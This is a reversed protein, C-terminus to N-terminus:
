ALKNTPDRSELPRTIASDTQCYKSKLTTRYYHSTGSVIQETQMKSNSYKSMLALLDPRQISANRSLYDSLRILLLEERRLTEMALEYGERIIAKVEENTEGNRDHYSLVFEKSEPRVMIKEKGFGCTKILDAAMTTAHEIDHGAGNTISDRGFVLEEAALGGLSTAVRLIFQARNIFQEDSDNDVFGETESDTTVSYISKPVRGLLAIGVVAHGSEHVAVVAQLEDNRSKRLNQNKPNLPISMTHKTVDGTSYDVIISKGDYRLLIDDTKSDGNSLEEAIIGLSASVYQQITTLIPRTGQAPFVGEKYILDHISSDLRLPVALSQQFQLAIRALERNIIAEFAKRDLSPYLIHINGLRAIQEARFRRRLAKKVHSTTIRLSEKHLIDADIDASVNGSMEYAEDLNGIIFVLSKTCDVGQPMSALEVTKQLFQISGRGDLKDLLSRVEFVTHYEERRIGRVIEALDDPVFFLYKNHPSPRMFFNGVTSIERKYIDKGRVVRGNHVLIGKELVGNLRQIWYCLEMMNDSFFSTQFEGRDLIEWVIRSTLSGGESGMENITRSHQFEDFVYIAPVGHYNEYIDTLKQKISHEGQNPDGLDFRFFKNGFGILEALRRALSSKGVGTLGWLNLVLPREQFEPFLYWSGLANIVEDIVQDIGFFETKLSTRAEELLTRKKNITDRIEKKM